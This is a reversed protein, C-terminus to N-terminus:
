MKIKNNMWEEYVAGNKFATQIGRKDISIYAERKNKVVGQLAVLQMNTVDLKNSLEMLAVGDSGSWKPIDTMTSRGYMNVLDKHPIVSSGEPLYALSARSPTLYADGSRTVIAEQGVEGVIATEAKGGSRGTKYQPIPQSAITAVSAIGTALILAALVAGFVGGPDAFAKTAGILTNVTADIIGVAKNFKAQNQRIKLNEAAREKEKQAFEAEIENRRNVNNGAAELQREMEAEDAAAQQDLLELQREYQANVLGIITAILETTQAKIAKKAEAEKAMRADVWKNYNEAYAADDAMKDEMAQKTDENIRDNMYKEIAAMADAYGSASQLDKKRLAELQEFHTKAADSRIAAIITEQEEVTLKKWYETQQVVKLGREALENTSLLAYKFRIDYIDQELKNAAAKVEAMKAIRKTAAQESAQTAEEEKKIKEDAASKEFGTIKEINRKQGEFYQSDLDFFSAYMTELEKTGDEGLENYADAIEKNTKKASELKNADMEIISRLLDANIGKAAATSKLTLEYEETAAKKKFEIIQLEKKASEELAMRRVDISKTQNQGVAELKAVENRLQAEQSIFAINRDSLEDMAYIFDYTATTATSIQKGMGDFASGIKKLGDIVDGKFVDRMGTAVRGVRDKFVDFATTAQKLRAEMEVAGDDTSKFASVLFSIAGVVAMIAAIIPNAAIVAMMKKISGAANGIPAPLGELASGYNGVNLTNRGLESQQAKLDDNMGRIKAQLEKGKSSEREAKSLNNFEKTLKAAEASVRKLSDEAAKGNKIEDTTAKNKEQIAIRLKVLEKAEESDLQILKAQAQALELALKKSQLQENNLSKMAEEIQRIKTADGFMGKSKDAGGAAKEIKDLVEDVMKIVAQKEKEIAQLDFVESIKGVQAM